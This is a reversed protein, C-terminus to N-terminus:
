KTKFLASITSGDQTTVTASYCSGAGTPTKWNQIFQGGTTDYRLSTGGTSLVEIADEAGSLTSCSVKQTKFSSIASTSTLEDAGAFVRFKMPVTSGGKVTNLVGGMDVPSTFGRLTWGLVTYNLTNSASNGAKDTAKATYSHSGVSSGGGSVTCSDVGSLADSADCTPAAPSQGFYVDGSPGGTLGVTPATKDINIGSVTDTKTNGAWDTATGTVSQGEGEGLTTDGECSKIGSGADDCDFTVAVNQKYWGNANPGGAPSLSHSISPDGTDVVEYTASATVAQLGGKDTYDCTATQSGLGHSLSGTVTAPHSSNGDEADTVTCSASPVGGIEYSAGNSVGAVEVSPKTNAPPNVKLTWNAQNNYTGAGTDQISSVTLNYTGAAAASFTVGQSVGCASFLLETASATVGAPVALNVKAPTGDDANCGKQGDSSTASIKYSVTTSGGATITDNGGVVVDNQVNDAAAIGGTGLVLAPVAAVATAMKLYRM